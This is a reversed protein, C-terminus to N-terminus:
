HFVASMKRDAHWKLSINLALKHLYNHQLSKYQLFRKYSQQQATVEDLHCWLSHIANNSDLATSYIIGSQSCAPRLVHLPRAYAEYQKNCAIM